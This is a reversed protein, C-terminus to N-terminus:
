KGLLPPPVNHSPHSNHLRPLHIEIGERRMGQSGIRFLRGTCSRDMENCWQRLVVM